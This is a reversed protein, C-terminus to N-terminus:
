RSPLTRKRFLWYRAVPCGAVHGRGAPSVSGTGATLDAPDFTAPDSAIQGQHGNRAVNVGEFGIEPMM